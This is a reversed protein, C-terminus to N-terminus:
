ATARVKDCFRKDHAIVSKDRLTGKRLLGVLRCSMQLMRASAIPIGQWCVYRLPCQQLVWARKVVCFCCALM